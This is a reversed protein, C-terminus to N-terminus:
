GCVVPGQVRGLGVTNERSQAKFTNEQTATTKQVPLPMRTNAFQVASTPYVPGDYAKTIKTPPVGPMPAYRMVGTQMTYTIAFDAEGAPVPANGGGQQDSVISNETPPGDTGTIAKLGPEVSAPFKGTMGSLTFRASYNIISGGPAASIMKIFYANDVDAGLGIEVAASATNGKKFDGTTVLTKLPLQPSVRILKPTLSAPTPRVFSGAENGGACLFLQYNLFTALLPPDGSEKWEIKITDGGAVVAGAKPSTFLVDALVTSLFSALLLSLRLIM